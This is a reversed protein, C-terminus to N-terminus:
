YDTDLLWRLYKTAKPTISSFHLPCSCFNLHSPELKAGCMLCGNQFSTVKSHHQLCLPIKQNLRFGVPSDLSQSVRLPSSSWVQCCISNSDGAMQEMTKIFTESGPAPIDAWSIFSTRFLLLKWDPYHPLSSRSPNAKSHLATPVVVPSTLPSKCTSWILHRQCLPPGHLFTAALKAGWNQDTAAM